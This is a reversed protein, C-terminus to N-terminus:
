LKATEFAALFGAREELELLREPYQIKFQIYLNGRYGGDDLLGKGLIPYLKNPNIIGFTSIDVTLEGDFLPVSIAKGIISDRLSIQSTYILANAQRTFNPDEKVKIKFIHKGRQKLIENYPGWNIFTIEQGDEVAKPIVFEVEETETLLGTNNCSVCGLALYGVQKCDQCPENQLQIFMGNQVMKQVVSYGKCASCTEKCENCLSTRKLKKKLTPGFFVDKLEIELEEFTDQIPINITQNQQLLSLLEPPLNGVQVPQPEPEEVKETQDITNEYLMKYADKIKRFHEEDGGKDPHCEKVLKKYAEKIETKTAGVRLNLLQYYDNM